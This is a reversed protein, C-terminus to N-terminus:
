LRFMKTFAENQRRIAEKTINFDLPSFSVDKPVRPKGYKTPKIRLSVESEKQKLSVEDRQAKSTKRLYPDKAEKGYPSKVKKKSLDVAGVGKYPDKAREGKYPNKARRGGYPDGVKKGYPDRAQTTKGFACFPDTITKSRLKIGDGSFYMDDIDVGPNKVAFAIFQKERSEPIPDKGVLSGRPDYDEVTKLHAKWKKLNKKAKRVRAMEAEAKLEKSDLLMRSTTIFDSVDKNQRHSAAGMRGEKENYGLVSNAKRLLQDGAPQINMGQVEKPLKSSGYVDFNGYHDKIPHIDAVEVWEGSKKVQVTVSGFQEKVEVKHEIGKRKFVKAIKRATAKPNRVIIDIDNPTRTKFSHSKMAISGYIEHCPERKIINDIDTAVKNPVNGAQTSLVPKSVVSEEKDLVKLIEIGSDYRAKETTTLKTKM